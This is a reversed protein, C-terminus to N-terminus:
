YTVRCPNKLLAILDKSAAIDEPSQLAAVRFLTHSLRKREPMIYRLRNFQSHDQDIHFAKERESPHIQEQTYRVRNLEEKELMHRQEIFQNQKSKLKHITAQIEATNIELSLDELIKTIAVYDERQRLKDQTKAPLLLFLEPNRKVTIPRFDEAQDNQLLLKLFSGLSDVSTISSLYDQTLTIQNTYAAFKM